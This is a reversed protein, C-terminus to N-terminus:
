TVKQQFYTVSPTCGMLESVDGYPTLLVRSCFLTVIIM